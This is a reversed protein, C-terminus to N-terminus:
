VTVKMCNDSTRFCNLARVVKLMLRLAVANGVSITDDTGANLGKYPLKIKLKWTSVLNTKYAWNINLMTLLRQTDFLIDAKRSGNQFHFLFNTHLQM